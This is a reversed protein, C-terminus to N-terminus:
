RGTAGDDNAPSFIKCFAPDVPGALSFYVLNCGLRRNNSGDGDNTMALRM